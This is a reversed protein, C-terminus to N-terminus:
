LDVLQSKVTKSGNWEIQLLAKKMPGRLKFDAAIQVTVRVRDTSKPPLAQVLPTMVILTGEGYPYWAQAAIPGVPMKSITGTADVVVVYTGSVELVNQPGRGQDPDFIIRADNLTVPSNSPNRLTVDFTYEHSEAKRTVPELQALGKEGPSSAASVLMFPRSNAHKFGPMASLENAGFGRHRRIQLKGSSTKMVDVRDIELGGSSTKWVVLGAIVV